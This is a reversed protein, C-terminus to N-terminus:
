RAPRPDLRVARLDFLAQRIPGVPRVEVRHPGAALRTEAVFVGRYNMWDSGTAGVLGRYRGDDIRIEFANGASEEPCAMDISVTYTADRDTRLSWAAHDAPSQWCGLNANEPEYILTQGYVEASAADLRIAGDDGPTVLRPANGALAKPRESDAALYALLHALDDRSLEKELGEPMLSRGSAALEDLDSRLISEAKGQERILTIGNATEAGVMGAVTRGDRLSAAYVVYRADVERNPDLIATLLADTSRDTLAALDPGVANGQEKYRHCAACVKAFVAAGRAPDSADPRVDRHAVVVAARASEREVGLLRGARDRVARDPHALLRQRHSADVDAQAVKGAEIAALLTMASAPREALADLVAARSVPLLGPWRAILADASGSADAKTLAMIAAVQVDAPQTPGIAGLVTMRGTDSGGPRALWRVAIARDAATADARDLLSQSEADITALLPSDVQHRGQAALLATMADIRWPALRGDEVQVLADVARRIAATPEHAVGRVLPGVLARSRDSEPRAIISALVEGAGRYSSSLVAATIWSDAPGSRALEGLARRAEPADWAGLSLALQYRVTPAPDAVLRCVEIALQRDADLRSEALRVALCRVGPHSDRLAGAVIPTPLAGLGDLTAMAQARAEPLLSARAVSELVPVAARDGREVLRRQVADRLTGNPSEITAALEATAMGALKPVMRARIVDPVVRYIRGRDHGARVDLAALRQPSIWRPHEIVFRAMDVVYLAGDPGTCVQVPRFWPDTSALFESQKEDGARHGVFTAGWASLVERHVLNHVPECIFANGKYDGGLLEDRYIAPSCAATVRNASEPHNFREQPASAPYLRTSDPDAPLYVAPNPSAVYPNRRAYHDPFPYHAILVSNSGGFQNGWDDHTRGQQTLGSAPELRALDPSLRFDRGGIDIPPGGTSGEIRGGILGNAGYIWNDLSYSLGNVRAQYNETAFGRFVTRRVDAHGDGNTDEAYLIEPAACILVGKKYAMVGTPFPVGTLFEDARDYRGDGDTDRLTKIVGGPTYKGDIGAPYDRMEAVWLTGDGGWDIAVPSQILPEAAVLEVRLGPKTRIALRGQEPSLVPPIADARPNSTRFGEPVLALVASDILAEVGPKLRTPHGYYVMAGGGEYGGERLIRESPIYCPDDNAYATMWLRAPDIETKLRLAYDVVVEGALFVMALDDGFRWITIPYEIHDPLAEGRDLRDLFTKANYGPPGGKKVLAELDARTPLTDFPLRIRTMGRTPATALPHLPSKLLRNVEDALAQAHATAKAESDRGHMASPNADAGCGIVTLAVAGPHERELRQQALGAWDGHVVNDSPDLTVCHCAYNVVIARTSGDPAEARLVPLSHDVPGGKTRRNIAFGVKGQGWSLRAPKRDALADLAVAVLKAELEKTYREVTAREAATLDRGFIHPAVGDLMPASHTHSAAVVLGDRSVGKKKVAEAVHGVIADSVGLSDVSILVSPGQEDSGIALAKAEIRLGVGTAESKRALYGSLRTPYGPTIDVKAVGVPITPQPDAPHVSLLGLALWGTTLM